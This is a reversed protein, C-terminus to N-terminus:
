NLGRPEIYDLTVMTIPLGPRVSPLSAKMFINAITM